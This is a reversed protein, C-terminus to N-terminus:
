EISSWDVEQAKITGDENKVYEVTYGNEPDGTVTYFYMYGAKYKQSTKSDGNIYINTIRNTALRYGAAVVEEQYTNSSLQQMDIAYTLSKGTNIRKGGASTVLPLGDESTFFQLGQDANNTIQIYAASPTFAINDAWKKVDFQRSTTESDLSFEYSKAEGALQGIKYTPFTSLIEGSRKDYKRFVPFLMYEGEGLHYSKEYTNNLVFAVSEGYPGRNRLEVNYRSGNNIIISYAGNLMSSIEYVNENTAGTNYVAYFTCYPSADLVKLNEKNEVYSDETVAYVVYDTSKGFISPNKKLGTTSGAKVGGLINGQSPEGKFLVMNKQANNKVVLAYDTYNTFDVGSEVEEEKSSDEEKDNGPLRVSANFDCAVFLVLTSACALILKSIKKM